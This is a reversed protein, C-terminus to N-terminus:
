RLVMASKSLTIKFKIVTISILNWNVTIAITISIKRVVSIKGYNFECDCSFNSSSNLFLKVVLM